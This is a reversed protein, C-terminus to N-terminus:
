LLRYIYTDEIVTGNIVSDTFRIGSIEPGTRIELRLLAVIPADPKVLTVNELSIERLEEPFASLTEQINKYIQRPGEASLKVETLVLKWQQIDPFYFWFAAYPPAGREDLKRILAAGAEIMEMTLTTAVM